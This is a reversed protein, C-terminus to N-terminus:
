LSGALYSDMLDNSSEWLVGVHLSLAAKVNPADAIDAGAPISVRTEIILPQPAYGAVVLVGKTTKITWVNRPVATPVGNAGIPLSRLNKPQTALISFPYSPSSVVVGAQTGGLASVLRSIGAVDSPVVGAVLTYTPNTFGTIVAGAVPSAPAYM